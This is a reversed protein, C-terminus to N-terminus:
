RRTRANRMEDGQAQLRRVEAMMQPAQPVEGGARSRMENLQAILSQAQAHPDQPNAGAFKAAAQPSRSNRMENSKALLANIQAMMQPAEPIERGAKQRRSNLEGILMEAQQRPDYGGQGGAARKQERANYQSKFTDAFGSEDVGSSDVVPAPRSEAVLDATGGTNTLGAPPPPAAPPVAQVGPKMAQQGVMYAGAGAVGAAAVGGGMLALDRGTQGSQAAQQARVAPYAQQMQLADQAIPAFPNNRLNNQKGSLVAQNRNSAQSMQSWLDSGLDMDVPAPPPAQIADLGTAPRPDTARIPARLLPTIDGQRVLMKEADSLMQFEPSNILQRMDMGGGPPGAVLSRIMAANDAGEALNQMGARVPNPM